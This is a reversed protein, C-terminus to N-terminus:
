SVSVKLVPVLAAVAPHPVLWDARGDPTAGLARLASDQTPIASHSPRSGARPKRAKAPIAM